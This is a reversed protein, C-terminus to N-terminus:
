AGPGRATKQPRGSQLLWALARKLRRQYESDDERGSCFFKVAGEGGGGRLREDRALTGALHRIVGENGDIVAAAPLLLRFQDRYFPFHTCGLVVTSYRTLDLGAGASRLYPLVADGFVEREAYTVLEPLPLEDVVDEARLSAVLNHYKELRLTLPTATVLIRGNKQAALAPKVAPEMGFVPFAFRRRLAGIAASTATNCAVVLAGAGREALFDAARLTFELVENESRLGYPAHDVDAYYYYDEQPLINLATALLTLGGVGSDLIGIRM